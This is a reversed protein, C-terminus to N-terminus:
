GSGRAGYRATLGQAGGPPTATECPRKFCERLRAPSPARRPTCRAARGRGRSLRWPRRHTGQARPGGRRRPSRLQRPAVAADSVLAAVGASLTTKSFSSSCAAPTSMAGTANMASSSSYQADPLSRHFCWFVGSPSGSTTRQESARQAHRGGCAAVRQAPASARPAGDCLGGGRDVLGTDRGTTTSREGGGFLGGRSVGSFWCSRTPGVPTNRPTRGFELAM